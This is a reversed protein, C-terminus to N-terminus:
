STVVCCPTGHNDWQASSAVQAHLAPPAPSAPLSRSTRSRPSASCRVCRASLPKRATSRNAVAVAVRVRADGGCPFGLGGWRPVGTALYM